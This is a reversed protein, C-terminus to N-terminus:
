VSVRKWPPLSDFQEVDDIEPVLLLIGSSFVIIDAVDPNAKLLVDARFETGYVKKSVIDWTEGQITSYTM